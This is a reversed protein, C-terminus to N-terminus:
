KVNFMITGKVAAMYYGNSYASSDNWGRGQLIHGPDGLFNFDSATNKGEVVTYRPIQTDTCGGGGGGGFCVRV